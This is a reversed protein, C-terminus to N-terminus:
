SIRGRQCMGCDLDLKSTPQEPSGGFDEEGSSWEESYGICGYEIPPLLIDAILQFIVIMFLVFFFNFALNVRKALLLQTARIAM